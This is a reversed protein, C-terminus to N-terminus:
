SSRLDLIALYLRLGSQVVEPKARDLFVRRKKDRKDLV